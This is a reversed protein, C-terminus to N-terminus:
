RFDLVTVSGKPIKLKAAEKLPVGQLSGMIIRLVGAHAVIVLDQEQGEAGEKRLIEELCEVVRSQLDYFNEGSDGVKFSLIDKGRREYELPFEEQIERIFRGDWDGLHIERLRVEEHIVAPVEKETVGKRVMQAMTLTNRIIEATEQARVLDSCYIVPKEIEHRDLFLGVAEAQNKGDENLPVDTQGLFVKEKHRRTEGHRVLVIRGRFDLAGKDKEM